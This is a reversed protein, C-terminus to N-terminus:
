DPKEGREECYAEGYLEYPFLFVSQFFTNQFCSLDKWEWGQVRQQFHFGLGKKVGQALNFNM